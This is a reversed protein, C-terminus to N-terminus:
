APGPRACRGRVDRASDWLAAQLRRLAVGPRGASGTPGPHERVAAQRTRRPIGWDAPARRCGTVQPTDRFDHCGSCSRQSSSGEATSSPTNTTAPQWAAGTRSTTSPANSSAATGTTPPTSISRAAAARAEAGAIGSRTPSSLSSPPSGAGACTLAIRGLPTPMTAARHPRHRARVAQGWGPPRAARGAAEATSALRQGPGAHRRHGDAARQRRGACPDQDDAGRTLARNTRVAYPNRTM